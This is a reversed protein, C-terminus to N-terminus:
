ACVCRLASCFVSVIGSTGASSLPAAKKEEYHNCDECQSCTGSTHMSWIEAEGRGIKANYLLVRIPLLTRYVASLGNLM